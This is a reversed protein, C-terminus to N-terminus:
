APINGPEFKLHEISESYVRLTTNDRYSWCIIPSSILGNIWRDLICLRENLKLVLLQVLFILIIVMTRFLKKALAINQLSSIMPGCYDQHNQIRRRGLIFMLLPRLLSTLAAVAIHFGYTFQPCTQLQFSPLSPRNTKFIFVNKFFWMNEEIKQMGGLIGSLGWGM